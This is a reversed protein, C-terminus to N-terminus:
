RGFRRRRSQYDRLIRLFDTKRFGKWNVDSFYLESYVSQWILFDTLHYGGTKIMVDPAYPFTLYKEFSQENVTGPTLGDEAMRRICAVIEDRGSMGIVVVVKMGSGSVEVDSGVHLELKAFNGIERIGPLLPKVRGPDATSIHFTLVSVARNGEPEDAVPIRKENYLNIETCWRAVESMKAPASVLDEEPIMFCIEGPLTTIGRLLIWEYLGYIVLGM